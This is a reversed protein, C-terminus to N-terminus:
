GVGLELAAPDQVALAEGLGVVALRQQLEDDVDLGALVLDLRRRVGVEDVVDDGVLLDDDDLGSMTITSPRLTSCGAPTRCSPRVPRATLSKKSKETYTSAAVLSMRRQYM